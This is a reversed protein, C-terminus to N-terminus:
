YTIKNSNKAIEVIPAEVNNDMWDRFKKKLEVVTGKSSFENDYKYLAEIGEHLNLKSLKRTSILKLNRYKANSLIFLSLQNLNSIFQPEFWNLSTKQNSYNTIIELKMKEGVFGFARIRTQYLIDYMRVLDM